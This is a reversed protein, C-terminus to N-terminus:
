WRICFRGVSLLCSAFPLCFVAFVVLSTTDGQLNERQNKRNETQKGDTPRKKIRQFVKLIVEDSM